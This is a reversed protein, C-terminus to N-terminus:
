IDDNEIMLIFEDPTYVPVQSKAYDHTNRTVICDVETRFGIQDLYWGIFSGWRGCGIVTIKM